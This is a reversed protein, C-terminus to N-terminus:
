STLQRSRTASITSPPSRAVDLGIKLMAQKFIDRAEGKEIAEPKAGIMEVGYKELIGAKFLDM